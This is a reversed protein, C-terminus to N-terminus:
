APLAIFEIAENGSAIDFVVVDGSRTMMLYRTGKVHQRKYLGSKGVTV